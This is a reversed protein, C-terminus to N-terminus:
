LIWANLATLNLANSGIDVLWRRDACSTSHQRVMQDVVDVGVKNKTTFYFLTLNKKTGKDVHMTSFLCFSKKANFLLQRFPM